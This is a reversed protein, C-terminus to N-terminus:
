LGVSEFYKDTVSRWEDIKQYVKDYDIKQSLLVRINEDINSDIMRDELGLRSLISTFRDIGQSHSNYFFVFQKKFIICFLLGHYTNTFICEADHYLGLWEEVSPFLLGKEKSFLDYNLPATVYITMHKEEAYEKVNKYHVDELSQLNLFYCYIYKTSKGILYKINKIYPYEQYNLLLTPDLVHIAEYGLDNIIKVGSDERVSIKDFRRLYPTITNKMQESIQSMGFSAAYSMKLKDDPAYTLYRFNKADHWIQDSGVIHCDVDPCNNVLQKYSIYGRASLAINNKIFKQLKVLSHLKKCFLVGTKIYKFRKVIPIPNARYDRLLTVDHGRKKLYKQLAFCQLASGYNVNFKIYSFTSNVSIKM